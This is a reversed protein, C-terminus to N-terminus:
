PAAGAYHPPGASDSPGRVDNRHQQREKLAELVEDRLEPPLQPIPVTPDGMQIFVLLDAIYRISVIQVREMDALRQDIAALLETQHAMPQLLSTLMRVEERYTNRETLIRAHNFLKPIGHWAGYILAIAMVGDFVCALVTTVDAAFPWDIAFM